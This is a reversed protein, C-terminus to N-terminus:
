FLGDRGLLEAVLIAGKAAGMKTNHSVLVYKVGNQGLVREQRLRGVVTTMGSGMERDRRPQPRFPDDHVYILHEPTSPLGGLGGRFERMALTVEAVSCPAETAVFVTETHGDSVNARTCTASVGFKAGDISDGVLEGLIKQTEKEVKEEEGPIYPIINDLVDLGLVGGNRGAGSMAQMSTMVVGKIGFNDLIPKLTMALGTTTCNPVPTVFGKWGREKQQRKLLVAHSNNVGPVFIPTDDFYRFASATSVVPTTLAYKPELEKAADSEVATFVLDVKRADFEDANQVLMRAYDPHLPEDCWWGVMGSPSRIADLYTKGASRSSAALAVIEFQPHNPLAALFQQGAIGTAGIVAVKKKNM